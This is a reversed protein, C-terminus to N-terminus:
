ALRIAGNGWVTLRGVGTSEAARLWPIFETLDGTYDAEGVFGGLSHTQGTRSSRREIRVDQLRTALTVVSRAREGLARYDVDPAANQYLTCLTSVRDRVRLFLADFRPDHIVKGEFKLEMPTLFHIRIAAAPPAGAALDIAIAELARADILHARGHKPGWVAFATQFARLMDADRDFVNVDLAFREGPEFRRGDLAAARLVFPRPRDEFGSPGIGHASPAFLRAHADRHLGLGLVGRFTNAAKGPPFWITEKAEFEFRLPLARFIM